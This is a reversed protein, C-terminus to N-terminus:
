SESYQKKIELSIYKTISFPTTVLTARVTKVMEIHELKHFQLPMYEMKHKM